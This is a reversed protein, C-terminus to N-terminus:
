HLTAGLREDLIIKSPASAPSTAESTPASDRAIVGTTPKEGQSCESFGNPPPTWLTVEKLKPNWDTDRLIRAVRAQTLAYSEDLGKKKFADMVWKWCLEGHAEMSGNLIKDAKVPGIGPCGTYNDVVDGVLTQYLHMRDGAFGTVEHLEGVTGNRAASMWSYNLGPIQLMDKDISVIVPERLNARQLSGQTIGCIDDAELGRVALVGFPKHKAILAKLPLLVDPAKVNKRNAKYTPLLDYRYSKGPPTLCILADEAGVEQVLTELRSVVERYCEMGDKVQFVEDAGDEGTGKSIMVSGLAVAYLVSDSDILAFRAKSNALKNLTVM